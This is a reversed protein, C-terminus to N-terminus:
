LRSPLEQAAEAIRFFPFTRSLEDSGMSYSHVGAAVEVDAIHGEGNPTLVHAWRLM